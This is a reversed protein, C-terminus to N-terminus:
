IRLLGLRRLERAVVAEEDPAAAVLPLRLGGVEHGLLNLAAKVPIPNAAVFLAAYLGHLMADEARAARPTGGPLAPCRPWAPASSTVPSASAAREAARSCECLMDDNGTYVALDSLEMLRETEDPGPEGAQRGCPRDRRAAGPDRSPRHDRLTPSTTSSSRDTAAAVAQFHARVGRDPPKNYYPVVALVGDVGCASAARTLAVSHATDNSGTGAVVAARGAVTEVVTRFMALKEADTLTPSEGTTGAVVLGDSGNALLHEALTSLREHDVAGDAAFPTVMATLITGLSAKM